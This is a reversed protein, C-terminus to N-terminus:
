RGMTEEKKIQVDDYNFDSDDDLDQMVLNGLPANDNVEPTLNKNETKNETANPNFDLAPLPANSDQPELQQKVEKPDITDGAIAPLEPAPSLEFTAQAIASPRKKVKKM